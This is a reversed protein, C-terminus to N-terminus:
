QLWAVRQWALAVDNELWFRLTGFPNHTHFTTFGRLFALKWAGPLSDLWTGLNEGALVGVVLYFLILGTFVAEGVRRVRRPEYAWVTLGLGTVAGWTFGMLVLVGPGAPRTGRLRGAAVARSPRVPHGPGAPGPRRT